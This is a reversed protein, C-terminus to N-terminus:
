LTDYDADGDGPSALWAPSVRAAAQEWADAALLWALTPRPDEMDLDAALQLAAQSRAQGAGQLRRGSRVEAWFFTMM